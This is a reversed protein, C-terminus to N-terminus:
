ASAGCNSCSLHEASVFWLGRCYGCRVAEGRTEAGITGRPLAEAVRAVVSAFVLAADGDDDIDNLDFVCARLMGNAFHVEGIELSSMQAVLADLLEAPVAQLIAAQERAIAEPGAVFTSPGFFVYQHARDWDDDSVNQEISVEPDYRLTVEGRVGDALVAVHLEVEDLNIVLRVNSRGDMWRVDICDDNKREVVRSGPVQAAVTGAFASGLQQLTGEGKFPHRPQVQKAARGRPTAGRARAVDAALLLTAVMSGVADTADRPEDWLTLNLEDNRSRFYRIRHTVMGALVRAQLEAPLERFADAEEDAEEREVFINPSLFVRHPAEHEDDAVDKAWEPDYELDFGPAALAYRLGLAGTTSGVDTITLQLPFGHLTGALASGYDEPRPIVLAGAVGARQGVAALYAATTRARTEEAGSHWGETTRDPSVELGLLEKLWRM